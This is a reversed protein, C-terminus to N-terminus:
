ESEADPERLVLREFLIAAVLLGFGLGFLSGVRVLGSLTWLDWLFVKVVTLLLFSFGVLRQARSTRWIGIVLVAVGYVAWGM